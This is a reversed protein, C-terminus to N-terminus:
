AADVGDFQDGLGDRFAPRAVAGPDDRVPVREGFIGAIEAIVAERRRLMIAIRRFLDHHRFGGGGFIAGERQRRSITSCPLLATAMSAEIRADPRAAPAM